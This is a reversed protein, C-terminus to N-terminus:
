WNNEKDDDLVHSPISSEETVGTPSHGQRLSVLEKKLVTIELDKEALQKTARELKRRIIALEEDASEAHSM